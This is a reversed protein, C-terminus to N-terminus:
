ADDALNLVHTIVAKNAAHNAIRITSNVDQVTKKHTGKWLLDLEQLVVDNPDVVFNMPDFFTALIEIKKEQNM